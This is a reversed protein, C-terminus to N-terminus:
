NHLMHEHPHTLFVMTQGADFGNPAVSQLPFHDEGLALTDAQWVFSQGKDNEIRVRQLHEVNIDRTSASIRITAPATSITKAREAFYKTREPTLVGGGGSAATVPFVPAAAGAPNPNNAARQELYRILAPTPASFTENDSLPFTNQEAAALSVQGGLLGAAILVAIDRKSM